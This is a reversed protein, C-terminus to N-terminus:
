DGWGYVLFHYVIPQGPRNAFPRETVQVETYHKLGALKGEAVLEAGLTAVNEPTAQGKPMIRTLVWVRVNPDTPREEQPPFGGRIVVAADEATM